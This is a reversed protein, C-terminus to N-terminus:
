TAMAGDYLTGRQMVSRRQEQQRAIEEALKKSDQGPQQYITFHNQSNDTVGPVGSKSTAMPPLSPQQTPDAFILPGLNEAPASASSGVTGTEDDGFGFINKTKNWMGDATNGITSTFNSVNGLAAGINNNLWTIGEIVTQLPLLVLNIGYAMAEGFSRGANGANELESSSYQVPELLNTFWNWADKLLTGVFGLSDIFNGFTTVLPQMGTSLGQFMGGFFASVGDWHKYIMMAGAAILGIVAGIPTTMLAIGVAKISAAVAGFSFTAATGAVTTSAAAALAAVRQKALSAAINLIGGGLMKYALQTSLVAMRLTTFAGAAVIIGGVLQPNASVFDRVQRIVPTLAGAVTKLVPNVADGIAKGLGSFANQLEDIALKDTQMMKAFDSDVVGGAKLAKAKIEQYKDLNQLAPRVFNQVQMDGFLESLLKQDGGNTIRNIEELAADIPNGGTFQANEVVEALNGGLAQSKKLTDPSLIKALFNNFNNAAESETAAGKRAIQLYAGMSAVGELGNVKLAQFQAGLVPLETAMAKFEFNGEKGSQVLADFADQMAKGESIKLADGLVYSAKSVDEIEAGAATATRGIARINGSVQTVSQGAAILFGYANKINDASQGTEDSVRVIDKGMNKIADDALNATNGILQLDYNFQAAKGSLALAPLAIAAGMVATEGIKQRLQSQREQNATRQKEIQLLRENATRLQNVQATLAQYRVRMGDVNKGMAGFTQIANGLTSQQAQLNKLASGVTDIKTKTKDLSGILTGAVAGGITILASLKKNAM